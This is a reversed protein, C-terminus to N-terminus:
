REKGKIREEGDSGFSVQRVKLEFQWQGHKMGFPYGSHYLPFEWADKQSVEQGVLAARAKM